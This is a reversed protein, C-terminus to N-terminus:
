QLKFLLLNNRYEGIIYDKNGIQNKLFIIIGTKSTDLISFTIVEENKLFIKLLYEKDINSINGNYWENKKISNIITSIEDSDKYEKIPFAEKDYLKIYSVQNAKLATIKNFLEINSFINPRTFELVMGVFAIIIIIIPIIRHIENKRYVYVGILFFAILIFKALFYNYFIASM